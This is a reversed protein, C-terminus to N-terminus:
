RAMSRAPQAKDRIERLKERMFLPYGIELRALHTVDEETLHLGFEESWHRFAKESEPLSLKRLTVQIQPQCAARLKFIHDPHIESELVVILLFGANVLFHVFELKPHSVTFINDLILTDLGRREKLFLLHKKLDALRDAKKPLRKHTIPTSGHLLSLRKAVLMLRGLTVAISDELTLVGFKRKAEIAATRALTSKGIGFEGHIFVHQRSKLAAQIEKMPRERGFLVPAEKTGISVSEIWHNRM